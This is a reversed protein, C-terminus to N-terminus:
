DPRSDYTGGAFYDKLRKWLGARRSHKYVLNAAVSLSVMTGKGPASDIAFKGGIREARERM